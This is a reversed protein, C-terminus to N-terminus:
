EPPRKPHTSLSSMAQFVWAESSRSPSFSSHPAPPWASPASADEGCARPVWNQEKGGSFYPVGGTGRGEDMGM